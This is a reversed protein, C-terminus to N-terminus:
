YMIEGSCHLIFSLYHFSLYSLINYLDLIQSKQSPHMYVKTFQTVMPLPVPKDSRQDVTNDIPCQPIFKPSMKIFDYINGPLFICLLISDAFQHGNQKLGLINYPECYTM